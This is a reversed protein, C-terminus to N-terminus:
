ELGKVVDEPLHVDFECIPDGNIVTKVTKVEIPQDLVIQWYNKYYGGSCNCFANPIEDVTGDKISEKVWPCHCYYYAKLMEDEEKLFKITEHPIKSVTLINGKRVGGEIGPKSKVYELVDKDIEQTFFLTGEKEHQELSAIFRKRKEALFEDINKSNLFRERDPKRWEYYPDRLGKALFEVCTQEGVKDHFRSILKKTYEPKEKPDIGLPPIDLDKFIDNRFDESYEEILRKSFNEMVESGDFVERGLKVLESNNTFHGFRILMEYSLETNKELEILIKSFEYFDESNLVEFTKDREHLFEKFSFLVALAEEVRKASEEDSVLKQKFRNIDDM